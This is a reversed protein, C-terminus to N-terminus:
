LQIWGTSRDTELLHWRHESIGNHKRLEIHIDVFPRLATWTESDPEGPFHFHGMGLVALLDARVARVFAQTASLGDIDLLVGLTAVGLRLEGPRLSDTTIADTIANYLSTGHDTM